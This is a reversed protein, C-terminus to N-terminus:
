RAWMKQIVRFYCQRMQEQADEVDPASGEVVIPTELRWRWEDGNQEVHGLTPGEVVVAYGSNQPKLSFRM